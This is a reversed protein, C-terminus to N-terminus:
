RHPVMANYIPLAENEYTGESVGPSPKAQMRVVILGLAPFVHLSTDLHGHAAFGAPEDHLWWLLGYEPNFTQSPSTSSDIWKRSVIQQGGWVGGNILLLGIRALDRPTTEMDAYTWAHQQEDLHLQTDRMGLPEFLRRRAYEQIPEGAARDLIASLLQAGENSYAWHTGPESAPSLGVVFPDKDRVSGVGSDGMTPLGSTMSMLQRLTARGRKGNCWATVFRCVREEVSRIRGDDILEGVLLSTISKTTSMAYMPQRYRSSYWEQVIQGKYVVLCADAGTNECLRQHRALANTNMGLAAADGLRWFSRATSNPASSDTSEALAHDELDVTLDRRLQVLEAVTGSDLDIRSCTSDFATLATRAAENQDLLSRSYVLAVRIGCNEANSKAAGHSGLYRQAVEAADAWRGARDLGLIRVLAGDDQARLRSAVVFLLV